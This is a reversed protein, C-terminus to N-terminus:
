GVMLLGRDAVLTGEAKVAFEAVAVELGAAEGPQAIHVQAGAVGIRGPKERQQPQM